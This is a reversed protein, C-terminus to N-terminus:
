RARVPELRSMRTLSSWLLLFCSSPYRPSLTHTSESAPSWFTEVFYRAAHEYVAFALALELQSAIHPANTGSHRLAECHVEHM